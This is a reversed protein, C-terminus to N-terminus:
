VPLQQVEKCHKWHLHYSVNDDAHLRRQQIGHFHIVGVVGLLSGSILNKIVLCNMTWLEVLGLLGELMDKLEGLGSMAEKWRFVDAGFNIEFDCEGEVGVAAFVDQNQRPLYIGTFADPLRIGNYTYFLVGSSFVFGLGITDGPQISTVPSDSSEPIYDRGGDPDEFFKRFDDM